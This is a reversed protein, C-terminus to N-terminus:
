GPPSRTWVRRALDGFGAAFALLGLHKALFVPLADARLDQLQVGYMGTAAGYAQAALALLAGGGLAFRVWAPPPGGFAWGMLAAAVFLLLGLVIALERLAAVPEPLVSVYLVSGPAQRALLEWAGAVAALLLVAVATRMIGRGGEFSPM